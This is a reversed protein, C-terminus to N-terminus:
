QGKFRREVPKIWRALIILKTVLNNTTEIKLTSEHSPHFGIPVNEVVCAYERDKIESMAGFGQMFEMRNGEKRIWEVFEPSNL